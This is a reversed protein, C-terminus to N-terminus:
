NITQSTSQKNPENTSTQCTTNTQTSIYTHTHAHKQKTHRKAVKKGQRIENFVRLCNLSVHSCLLFVFLLLLLVFLLLSQIQGFVNLLVVAVFVVSQSCNLSRSCRTRRTSCLGFGAAVVVAFAVLRICSYFPPCFPAGWPANIRNHRSNCDCHLCCFYFVVVFIFLFVCFYMCVFVATNALLAVRFAFLRM